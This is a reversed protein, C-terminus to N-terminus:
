KYGRAAIETCVRRYFGLISVDHEDIRVDYIGRLDPHAKKINELARDYGGSGAAGAVSGFPSGALQGLLPISVGHQCSEGYVMGAQVAGAPLDKPTLPLLSLPGQADYFLLLGGPFILGYHALGADGTEDSALAPAGALLIAALFM